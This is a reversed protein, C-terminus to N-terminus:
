RADGLVLRDGFIVRYAEHRKNKYYKITKKSSQKM